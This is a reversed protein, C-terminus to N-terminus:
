EDSEEGQEFFNPPISITLQPQKPDGTLLEEAKLKKVLVSLNGKNIGCEDIIGIQTRTGDMLLIAKAKKGAASGALGRLVERLKKDRQAITPEAMVRLLDRMEALVHLMQASYDSM